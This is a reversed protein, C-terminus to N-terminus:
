FGKRVVRYSSGDPVMNLVKDLDESAESYFSCVEYNQPTFLKPQSSLLPCRGKFDADLVKIRFSQFVSAPIKLEIYM